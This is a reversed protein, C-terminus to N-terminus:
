GHKKVGRKGDVEGMVGIWFLRLFYCISRKGKEKNERWFGFTFEKEMKWYSNAFLDVLFILFFEGFFLNLRTGQSKGILELGFKEM